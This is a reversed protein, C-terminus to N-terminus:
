LIRLNMVTSVLDPWEGDNRTLRVRARVCGGGGFTWKLPTKDNVDVDV